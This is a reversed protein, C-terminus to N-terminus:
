NKSTSVEDPTHKKIEDPTLIKGEVRNVLKETLAKEVNVNLTTKIISVRSKEFDSQDNTEEKMM